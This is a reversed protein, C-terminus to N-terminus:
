SSLVQTDTIAFPEQSPPYGYKRSFSRSFAEASGFGVDAAVVKVSRGSRLQVRALSLRWAALYAIPTQGITNTFIDIFRSRKMVAIEALQDIHWRRAPADHIAVLCTHLEDHALGALLGANVTGIALARRISLVVIVECLRAHISGGGCRPNISENVILDALGRLQPEHALSFRLEEPLAGVLPNLNDGFDIAAAALVMMEREHLATSRPRYILHTPVGASQCDAILLNADEGDNRYDARLGYASLFAALRDHRQTLKSSEIM